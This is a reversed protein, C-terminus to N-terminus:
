TTGYGFIKQMGRSLIVRNNKRPYIGKKNGFATSITERALTKSIQGRAKTWVGHLCCPNKDNCQTQGMVCNSLPSEAADDLAKIVRLLTLRAANVKLIYGGRPGSKSTLIRAKILCQFIKALYAPPVDTKANVEMVTAPRRGELSALYGLARIAYQCTKSYIM